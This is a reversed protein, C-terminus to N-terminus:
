LGDKPVSQFKKVNYPTQFPTFSQLIQGLDSNTYSAYHKWRAKIKKLNPAPPLPTLCFRFYVCVCVNINYM